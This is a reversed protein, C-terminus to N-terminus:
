VPRSSSERAPARSTVAVTSADFATGTPCGRSGSRTKTARCRSTRRDRYTADSLWVLDGAPIADTDGPMALGLLMARVEAQRRGLRATAAAFLARSESLTRREVDAGCVEGLFTAFDRAEVQADAPPFARFHEEAAATLERSWTLYLVRQGSRAEVAKWLM